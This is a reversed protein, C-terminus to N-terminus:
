LINYFIIKTIIKKSLYFIIFSLRYATLSMFWFAFWYIALLTVVLRIAFDLNWVIRPCVLQYCVFFSRFSTFVSHRFHLGGDCFQYIDTSTLRFDYVIAITRWKKRSVMFIKIVKIYHQGLKKLSLLRESKYSCDYEFRSETQGARYSRILSEIVIM